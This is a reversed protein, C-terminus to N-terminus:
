RDFNLHELIELDALDALILIFEMIGSMQIKSSSCEYRFRLFLYHFLSSFM